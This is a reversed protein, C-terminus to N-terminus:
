KCKKPFSVKFSQTLNKKFYNSYNPWLKNEGTLCLQTRDTNGQGTVEGLFLFAGVTDCIMHKIQM